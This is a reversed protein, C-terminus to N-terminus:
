ASASIVFLGINCLLAVTWVTSRLSAQDLVYFVGHLVRCVVWVGGLIAAQNPDAGSSHAVFIAALFFPLAEFANQHAGVARAAQGSLKAQQARPNRNDYGEPLKARVTASFPTWVYPLICAILLYWFLISM